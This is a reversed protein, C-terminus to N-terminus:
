LKKTLSALRLGALCGVVGIAFPYIWKAFGGLTVNLGIAILCAASFVFFGVLSTTRIQNALHMKQKM